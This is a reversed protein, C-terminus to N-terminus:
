DLLDDLASRARKRAFAEFDKVNSEPRLGILEKSLELILAHARLLDNQANDRDMELMSIGAALEGNRAQRDMSPYSVQLIM